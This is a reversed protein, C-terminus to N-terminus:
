KKKVAKGAVAKWVAPLAFNILVIAIFYPILNQLSVLFELACTLNGDIAIVTQSIGTVCNEVSWAAFIVFVLLDVAFLIWVKKWSILGKEVNGVQQDAM